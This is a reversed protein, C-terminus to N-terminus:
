KEPNTIQLPIQFGLIELIWFGSKLLLLLFAPDVVFRSDQNGYNLAPSGSDL